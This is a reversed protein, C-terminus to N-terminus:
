SFAMANIYRTQSDTFSTAMQLMATQISTLPGVADAITAINAGVTIVMDIHEAVTTVPEIIAEIASRDAAVAVRDLGTQVRDEGIALRDAAVLAADDHAKLAAAQALIVATRADDVKSPAVLESIATLDATAADPVAVVFTAYRERNWLEPGVAISCWYVTGARGDVNPWLPISIHGAPDTDVSVSVPLVINSDDYDRHTLKFTVTAPYSPTGDPNLITGTVLCTDLASM